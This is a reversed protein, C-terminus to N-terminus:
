ADQKPTMEGDIKIEIDQKKTFLSKIEDIMPQIAKVVGDIISTQQPEQAAEPSDVQTAPEQPQAVPMEPDGQSMQDQQMEPSQQAMQKARMDDLLKQSHALQGRAQRFKDESM